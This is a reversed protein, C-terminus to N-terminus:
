PRREKTEPEILAVSMGQRLGKVAIEDPNRALVAVEQPRYKGNEAVYVTPKGQVTFVAKAPVSIAGPVRNIVVDMAGNMSPRLRPDVKDLKGFGRFTRTPPWEWSMVTMPSLMALKAPFVAEPLSDIRVRVEQGLTIRGRDIEEIKGEMELSGLDPIEAMAAGPWVQDGVKFPKANMWGQSYNPLYNVWGDIPAKREMQKLRYDTLELEDKAKDLARKLSAIKAEGSTTGFDNKAKQIDLKKESLGLEIKNKEAELPSLIGAKLVELKAHEVKYSADDLDLQNQQDAIRADAIAQDLAAKAQNLAAQKEQLQAKVASPDFRAVADGAKVTSGTPAMWVIRLEPVNVPATIQVSRRAKLEGRCRVIVSFDGQRVPATPLAEAAHSQRYRNFGAIGLGAVAPLLIVAGLWPAKRKM